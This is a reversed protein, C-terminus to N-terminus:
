LNKFYRIYVEKNNIIYNNVAEDVNSQDSTIDILVGEVLVYYANTHKNRMVVAPLKISAGKNHDSTICYWLMKVFVMDSIFNDNDVIEVSIDFFISSM